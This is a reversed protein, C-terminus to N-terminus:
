RAGCCITTASLRSNASSSLVDSISALTLSSSRLMHRNCGSTTASKTLGCLGLPKLSAIAARKPYSSMRVPVQDRGIQPYVRWSAQRAPDAELADRRQERDALSEHQSLHVFGASTRKVCPTQRLNARPRAAM